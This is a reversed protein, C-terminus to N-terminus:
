GIIPHRKIRSVIVLYNGEVYLAVGAGLLIAIVIDAVKPAIKLCIFGLLCLVFVAGVVLCLCMGIIDSISFWFEERNAFFMDVAGFM